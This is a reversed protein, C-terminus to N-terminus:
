GLLGFVLVTVAIGLAAGLAVELRSHIGLHLRSLSVLGALIFSLLMALPNETLFTIATGIAFAVAAHGSPMGGRLPTGRGLRVKLFITAFIVLVIAAFALLPPTHKAKMIFRNLPPDLHGFLTLYAIIATGFAAVFAAGASVDKAWKALPHYSSSALDVTLEVATNVLEAFILLILSSFLLLREPLSLKFFFSALFVLFTILLVLRVSRQAKAAYLIGEM